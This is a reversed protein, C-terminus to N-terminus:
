LFHDFTGVANWEHGRRMLSRRGREEESVENSFLKGTHYSSGSSMSSLPNLKAATAIGGDQLVAASTRVTTPASLLSMEYLPYDLGHIQLAFTFESSFDKNKELAYDSVLNSCAYFTDSGTYILTWDSPDVIITCLKSSEGILARHQSKPMKIKTIRSRPVRREVGLQSEYCVTYSNERSNRTEIKAPFHKDKYSVFVRDGVSILDDNIRKYLYYTLSHAGVCHYRTNLLPQEWELWVSSQSIRVAKVAAPQFLPPYGSRTDEDVMSVVERAEREKILRIRAELEFCSVLSEGYERVREQIADRELRALFEIEQRRQRELEDEFDVVLMNKHSAAELATWGGLLLARQRQGILTCGWRHPPPDRLASREQLLKELRWHCVELVASCEAVETTLGGVAGLMFGRSRESSLRKEARLIDTKACQIPGDMENVSDRPPPLLGWRRGILDLIYLAPEAYAGASDDNPHYSLSSPPTGGYLIISNKLM